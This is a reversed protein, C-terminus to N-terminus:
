LAGTALIAKYVPMETGIININRDRCRALLAEDPRAGECLVIVGIEALAAVGAVNQNNMITFWACGAGAQAMVHSLFDGAYGDRIEADPNVTNFEEASLIRRLESLKM